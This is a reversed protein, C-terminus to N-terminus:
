KWRVGFTLDSLGGITYPRRAELQEETVNFVLDREALTEAVLEAEIDLKDLDIAVQVSGDRYKHAFTIAEPPLHFNLGQKYSFLRVRHNAM